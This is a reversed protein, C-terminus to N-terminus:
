IACCCVNKFICMKRSALMIGKGPMLRSYEDDQYFNQVLNVTDTSITNGIKSSPVSCIGKESRLKRAKRILHESVEFYEAAYKRSWSEPILTLVQVKVKFNANKIKEKMLKMLRDLDAAKNVINSTMTNCPQKLNDVNLSYVDAFEIM